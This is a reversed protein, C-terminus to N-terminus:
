FIMTEMNRVLDARKEAHASMAKMAEAEYYERMVKTWAEIAYTIALKEGKKGEKVNRFTEFAKEYAEQVALEINTMKSQKLNTNVSIYFAKAPYDIRGCRDLMGM